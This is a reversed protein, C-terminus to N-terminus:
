IQFHKVQEKMDNSLMAIEDSSQVLQEINEVILEGMNKIDTVNNNIQEAVVSQAETASSNDNSMKNIANLKTVILNLSDGAHTIQEVTNSMGSKGQSIAKIAKDSGNQLSSIMAEIEAISDQTKQALTRVEDAVVAFGRGQEGARAAEIAANLALLNTQEAIGGIVDLISNIKNSDEDLQEIVISTNNIVQELSQTSEISKDVIVKGKNTINNAQQAEQSTLMANQAIEKASGSMQVIAISAQETNKQQQEVRNIINKRVSIFQQSHQNLDSTTNHIRQIIQQFESLMTNLATGVQAFEDNGKENVRLTLNNTKSIDQVMKIFSALSHSIKKQLYITFAVVFSAIFLSAILNFTQMSATKQKIGEEISINIKKLLDESQHVTNRMDGLIGSTSSFGKKEILSAIQIFDKKYDAIDKLLITKRNDILDSNNIDNIFILYNKNFKDTYKTSKRMFFDKENRRLMLMDKYLHYDTMEKFIEEAKHVSARLTGRLGSKPTLGIQKSIDVLQHFRSQYKNMIISLLHYDELVLQNNELVIELQNINDLMLAFNTNFKHLYKLDSRLLFDKENRRLMLMDSKLQQELNQTDSLSAFTNVSVQMMIISVIMSITIAAAIFLLKLKISM